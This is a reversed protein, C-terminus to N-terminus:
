TRLQGCEGMSSQSAEQRKSGINIGNMIKSNRGGREVNGPTGQFVRGACSVLTDKRLLANSPFSCIVTNFLRSAIHIGSHYGIPQM